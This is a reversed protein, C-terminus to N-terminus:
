NAPCGRKILNRILVAVILAFGVYQMKCFELTPSDVKGGASFEGPEEAWWM